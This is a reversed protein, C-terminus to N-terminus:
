WKDDKAYLLAYRECWHYNHRQQEFHGRLLLAKFFASLGLRMKEAHSLRKVQYGAGWSYYL